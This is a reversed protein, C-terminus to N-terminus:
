AQVGISKLKHLLARARTLAAGQTLLGRKAFAEDLKEMVEVIEEVSVSVPSASLAFKWDVGFLECSGPYGHDKAAQYMKKTPNEPVIVYKTM